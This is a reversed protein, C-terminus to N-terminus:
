RKHGFLACSYWVGNRGKAMAYGYYDCRGNIAKWHEPSQKWSHYMEKAADETSQNKWSEAVCEGFAGCDPMDRYLVKVRQKWNWHGQKQIRAQYAAQEEAMKQLVPHRRGTLISRVKIDRGAQLLVDDPTPEITSLVIIALILPLAYKFM